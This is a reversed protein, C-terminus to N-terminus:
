TCKGHCGLCICLYYCTSGQLMGVYSTAMERSRIILSSEANHTAFCSQCVANVFTDWSFWQEPKSPHKRVWLYKIMVRLFLDYMQFRHSHPCFYEWCGLPSFTERASRKEYLTMCTLFDFRSQGCAHSVTANCWSGTNQYTFVYLHVTVFHDCTQAECFGDHSSM